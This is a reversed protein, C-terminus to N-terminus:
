EATGGPGRFDGALPCTLEAREGSRGAGYGACRNGSGACGGAVERDVVGLKHHSGVGADAFRMPKNRHSSICHASPFINQM